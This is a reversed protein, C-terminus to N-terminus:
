YAVIWDVSDFNAAAANITFGTTTKSTVWFTRNTKAGLAVRYDTNPMTYGGLSVTVTTGGTFVGEGTLTGMMNGDQESSPALKNFKTWFRSTNNDYWIHGGVVLHGTSWSSADSANAVTLNNNTGEMRFDVGTSYQLRARESTGFFSPNDFVVFQNNPNNFIAAVSGVTFYCNQILPPYSANIAAAGGTNLDLVYDAVDEFRCNTVRLGTPITGTTPTVTCKIATDLGEFFCNDIVVANPATLSSGTETLLVGTVVSGFSCRTITTANAAGILRVGVAAPTGDGGSRMRTRFNSITTWFSGTDSIAPDTQTVEIGAYTAKTNHHEVTVDDILTFASGMIQFCGNVTTNGRHNFHGGRWNVRFNNYGKFIKFQHGVVNPGSTFEVGDAIIDYNHPNIQDVEFVVQSDLYVQKGPPIFLVGGTTKIADWASQIAASDDTIGDGVLNYPATAVNVVNKYSFDNVYNLWDSTVVTGPTFTTDAM